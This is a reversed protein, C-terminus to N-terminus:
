ERVVKCSAGRSDKFLHLSTMWQPTLSSFHAGIFVDEKRKIGAMRGMIHACDGCM